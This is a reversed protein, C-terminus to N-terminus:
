GKIDEQLENKEEWNFYPSPSKEIQHIFNLYEPTNIDNRSKGILYNM